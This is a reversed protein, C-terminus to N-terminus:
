SSVFINGGKITATFNFFFQRLDTLYEDRIKVRFQGKEGSEQVGFSSDFEAPFIV